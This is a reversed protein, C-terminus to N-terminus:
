WKGLLLRTGSRVLKVGGNTAQFEKWSKKRAEVQETSLMADVGGMAARFDKFGQIVMHSEGDPSHGSTISGLVMLWGEKKLGDTYKQRATLFTDEDAVDILYYNQVPYSTAQDGSVTIIRGMFSNIGEKVHQNLRTLFFEWTDGQANSYWSGMADLTGSFGISHTYENGSDNFHNEFLRVTVGETKNQKFYDDVLTYVAAVNQTEVVFNYSTWYMDQAQLSVTM